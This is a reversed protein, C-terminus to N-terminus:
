RDHHNEHGLSLGCDNRQDGILEANAGILDISGDFQQIAAGGDREDGTVALLDGATEVIALQTREFLAQAIQAFHFLTALRDQLRDVLLPLHGIRQAGLELCGGGLLPQFIEVQGIALLTPGLRLDGPLRPQFRQRVPQQGIGAEVRIAFRRREDIAGGALAM